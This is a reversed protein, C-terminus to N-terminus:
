KIKAAAKRIDGKVNHWDNALNQNDDRFGLKPAPTFDSNGEGNLNVISGIGQLFAKFKGPLKM